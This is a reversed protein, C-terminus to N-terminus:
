GPFRFLVFFHNKRRVRQSEELRWLPVAKLFINTISFSWDAELFRKRQNVEEGRKRGNERAPRWRKWGKVWIEINRKKESEHKYYYKESERVEGKEEEKSVRFALGGRKVWTVVWGSIVAGRNCGPRDELSGASVRGVCLSVRRRELKTATIWAVASSWWITWLQLSCLMPM